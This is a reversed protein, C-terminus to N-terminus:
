NIRYNNGLLKLWEWHQQHFDTGDDDFDGDKYGRVIVSDCCYQAM